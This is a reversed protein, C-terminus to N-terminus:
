RSPRRSPSVRYARRPRPWLRKPCRYSVVEAGSLCGARFGGVLIDLDAGKDAQLVHKVYLGAYGRTVVPSPPTWTQRRKQLEEDSVAMNLSRKELDLEILDGDQVLALPGGVAAEPAVHLIVTGYATGSMRGDSICVMDRVGQQLLKKPLGFKGAEPMGPFGKPGIGKLVLVSTKTWTSIPTM